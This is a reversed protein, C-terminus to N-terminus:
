AKTAAYGRIEDAIESSIPNARVEEALLRELDPSPGREALIWGHFRWAAGRGFIEPLRGLLETRDLLGALQPFVEGLQGCVKNLVDVMTAEDVIRWRDLLAEADMWKGETAVRQRSRRRM